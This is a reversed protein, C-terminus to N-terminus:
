IIAVVSHCVFVDLNILDTQSPTMTYLIHFNVRLICFKAAVSFFQAGIRNQSGLPNGLDRVSYCIISLSNRFTLFNSLVHWFLRELPM